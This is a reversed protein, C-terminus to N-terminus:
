RKDNELIKTLLIDRQFQLKEADSFKQWERYTIKIGMLQYLLDIYDVLDETIEYIKM